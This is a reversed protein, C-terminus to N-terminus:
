FFLKIESPNLITPTQVLVPAPDSGESFGSGVLIGKDPDAVRKDGVLNLSASILITSKLSSSPM